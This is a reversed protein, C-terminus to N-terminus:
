FAAGLAVAKDVLKAGDPVEKGFDAYVAKSANIFANKDAENIKTGAAKIKDILENDLEAATKYVYGQVDRATKELVGRVDAPLSNWKRLGATLYAPTYVHGTLSLHKQVEQFKSSYIQTLPNEQGDMVGTQLAVFVESLAMPSPNAGYAQFMKVRWVGQPVRLKMGRLDEPKVIPRANNTVHRFGNEWVGLIKYGKEEVMPALSPWVVEAEIKKMHDRNKVLYPMEFMGFAPVTSSMVTSPLALELTGLRLKQMMESDGGLQSSGFVVVKAKGALRENAVRAFENASREFLSGPGGVHGLKIEMQALAPAAGLLATAALVTTAALVHLRARAGRQKSDTTM